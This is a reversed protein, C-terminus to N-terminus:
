NQAKIKLLEIKLNTAEDFFGNGFEDTLSGNPKIEIKIVKTSHENTSENFYYILVDNQKIKKEATLIQMKRIVYESHTEIIFRIEFTKIADLLFDAILSQLKPHLNTEPEELLFTKKVIVLDNDSKPSIPVELAIKLLIPLFQTIGYGLDALAIKKNKKILFITTAVGEINEFILEDAIEFKKLWKNTFELSEKSIERSKYELILDNFSTGQSDNTYIRKTNARVAELYELNDSIEAFDKLVRKLPMSLFYSHFEKRNKVEFNDMAYKEYLKRFVAVPEDIYIEKTNEKPSFFTSHTYLIKQKNKKSKFTADQLRLPEHFISTLMKDKNIKEGDIYFKHLSDPMDDGIELKLFSTNEDKAFLEIKVLKGSRDNKKYTLEININTKLSDDFEKLISYVSRKTTVSQKFFSSQNIAIGQSSGLKTQLGIVLSEDDLKSNLTNEFTGLNHKTGSFDLVQLDSSYNSKLLLLAKLVSSKGSSNPGTLFTIPALDFVTKSEFVRFNDFSIQTLHSM